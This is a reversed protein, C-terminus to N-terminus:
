HFCACMCVCVCLCIPRITLRHSRQTCEIHHPRWHASPASTSYATNSTNQLRPLRHIPAQIIYLQTVAHNFAVLLGRGRCVSVANSARVMTERSGGASQTTVLSWWQLRRNIRSPLHTSNGLCGVPRIMAVLTRSPTQLRQGIFFSVLLLVYSVATGYMSSSLIGSGSFGDNTAWKSENSASIKCTHRECRLM